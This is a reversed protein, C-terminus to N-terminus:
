FLGFCVVQFKGSEQQGLQFRAVIILNDEARVALLVKVVSM